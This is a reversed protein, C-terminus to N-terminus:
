GPRSRRWPQGPIPCPSMNAIDPTTTALFFSAFSYEKLVAEGIVTYEGLQTVQIDEYGHSSKVSVQEPNVPLWLWEKEDITKLWFELSAM